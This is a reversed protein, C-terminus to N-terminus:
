FLKTTMQGLILQSIPVLSQLEFYTVRIVPLRSSASSSGLVVVSLSCPSANIISVFGKQLLFLSWFDGSGMLSVNSIDSYSQSFGHSDFAMWASERPVLLASSRDLGPAVGWICQQCQSCFAPVVHSLCVRACIPAPIPINM